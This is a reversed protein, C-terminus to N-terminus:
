ASALFAVDGVADGITHFGKLADTLRSTVWDGGCRVAHATTCSFAQSIVAVLSAPQPLRVSRRCGAISPLPAETCAGVRLVQFKM